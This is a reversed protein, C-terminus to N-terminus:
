SDAFRVVGPGDRSGGTEPQTEQRQRRGGPVEAQSTVTQQRGKRRGEMDTPQDEGEGGRWARRPRQHLGEDNRGSHTPREMDWEPRRCQCCHQTGSFRSTMANRQEDMKAPKRNGLTGGSSRAPGGPRQGRGGRVRLKTLTGPRGLRRPASRGGLGQSERMRGRAACSDERTARLPHLVHSHLLYRPVPLAM